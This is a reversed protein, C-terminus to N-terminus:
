ESRLVTASQNRAAARGPPAAILNALALAGPIAIFITILPVAPEPLVGLQTAFIHWAWRGAAVGTPLGILLAIAVITTAQWAIAHRVQRRVFGLTKLIALDRRRRRTSSALTHALTGAALLALLGSLAVPV